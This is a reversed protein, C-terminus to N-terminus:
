TFFVFSFGTIFGTILYWKQGRLDEGFNSNILSDANPWNPLHNPHIWATEDGSNRLIFYLFVKYHWFCQIKLPSTKVWKRRTWVWIIKTINWVAEISMFNGILQGLIWWKRGITLVIRRSTTKWFEPLTDRCQGFGKLEEITM